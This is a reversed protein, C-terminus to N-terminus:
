NSVNGDKLTAMLKTNQKIKEIDKILVKITKNLQNGSKLENEIGNLKDSLDKLLLGIQHVDLKTQNIDVVMCTAKKESARNKSFNTVGLFTLVGGLFIVTWWSKRFNDSFEQIKKERGKREWYEEYNYISKKKCFLFIVLILLVFTWSIKPSDVIMLHLTYFFTNVFFNISNALFDLLANQFDKLNKGEFYFTMSGFIVILITLFILVKYKNTFDKGKNYTTKIRSIVDKLIYCIKSM